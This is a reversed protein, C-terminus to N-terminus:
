LWGVFAKSEAPWREGRAVAALPACIVSGSRTAFQRIFCVDVPSVPWRLVGPYTWSLYAQEGPASTPNSREPTPMAEDIAIGQGPTIGWPGHAGPRPCRFVCENRRLIPRLGSGPKAVLGGGAEREGPEPWRAQGHLYAFTPPMPISTLRLPGGRLRWSQLPDNREMWRSAAEIAPCCIIPM